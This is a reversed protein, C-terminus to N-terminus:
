THWDMRATYLMERGTDKGVSMKKLLPIERRNPNVDPKQYLLTRVVVANGGTTEDFM